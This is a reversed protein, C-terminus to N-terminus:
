DARERIRLLNDGSACSVVDVDLDHLGADGFGHLNGGEGFRGAELQHDAPHDFCANSHAAGEAQDQSEAAEVHEVEVGWEQQGTIGDRAAVSIFAWM